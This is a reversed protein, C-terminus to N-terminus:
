NKIAGIAVPAESQRQFSMSLSHQVKVRYFIDIMSKVSKFTVHLLYATLHSMIIIYTTLM